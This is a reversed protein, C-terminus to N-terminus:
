DDFANGLRLVTINVMFDFLYSANASVHHFLMSHTVRSKISQVHPSAASPHGCDVLIHNWTNTSIHYSFLGSYKYDGTTEEENRFSFSFRYSTPLEHLIAHGFSFYFLVM